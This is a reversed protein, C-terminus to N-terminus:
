RIPASRHRRAHGGPSDRARDRASPVRSRSMGASLASRPKRPTIIAPEVEIPGWGAYRRALLGGREILDLVQQETLNMREAAEDLPVFTNEAYGYGGPM